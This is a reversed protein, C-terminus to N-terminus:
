TNTVIGGLLVPRGRCTDTLNDNWVSTDGLRRIRLALLNGVALSALQANAIAVSAQVSVLSTSSLTATFTQEAGSSGSLDVKAGAASLNYAQVGLQVVKGLDTPDTGDDVLLLVVTIGTGLVAAAPVICSFNYKEVVQARLLRPLGVGRLAGVVVTKLKDDYAQNREPYLDQVGFTAILEGAM